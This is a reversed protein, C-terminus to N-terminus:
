GVDGLSGLAALFVEIEDPLGVTVRIAAPDGFGTLPRVIVGKAELAKATAAGDGVPVCLFNAVSPLPEYGLARLGEDLRARGIRNQAARRALEDGAELSALAAAQAAQGVDFANKVKVCAAAVDDPAVGYGVRFGALGYIKSFTRLVVIRRGERVHEAISDPYDPDDVYEFYAEDVIPLVHGPLADLFQALAARGVMGGTPNNPNTVYALKTRETVADLLADLDYASGALPAKVPVAGMKVADILYVPFSPWCFAVEDGPELLALALYNLVADAGNGVIVREFPVGFREGLAARLEYCGGDPYRNGESAAQVIADLAEPMPGYPGENSALKVVPGTIGLERRVLEIPRGPEYPVLQELAARFQSGSAGRPPM